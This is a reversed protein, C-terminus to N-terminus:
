FIFSIFIQMMVPDDPNIPLSDTEKKASFNSLIM